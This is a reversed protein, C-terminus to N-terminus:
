WPSADLLITTADNTGFILQSHTLALRACYKLFTAHWRLPVSVQKTCLCNAPVDLSPSSLASRLMAVFHRWVVLLSSPHVIRGVFTRDRKCTVVNIRRFEVAVSHTADVVVDRLTVVVDALQVHMKRFYVRSIQALGASSLVGVLRAANETRQAVVSPWCRTTTM